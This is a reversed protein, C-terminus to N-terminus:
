MKLRQLVYNELCNIPTAGSITQDAVDNYIMFPGNLNTTNKVWYGIPFYLTILMDKFALSIFNFYFQPMLKHM